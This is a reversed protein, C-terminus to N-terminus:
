QTSFHRNKITKYINKGIKRNVLTLKSDTGKAKQIRVLLKKKKKKKKDDQIIINKLDLIGFSDFFFFNKKPHLDLISWWHTGGKDMRDTNAILVPYKADKKIMKHFNIFYNIQNSAFVGLLFVLLILKSTM